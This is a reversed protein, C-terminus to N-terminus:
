ERRRGFLGKPRELKELRELLEYNRRELTKVAKSLERNRERLDRLEPSEKALTGEQLSRLQARLSRNGERLAELQATMPLSEDVSESIDLSQLTQEIIGTDGVPGCAQTEEELMRCIRERLNKDGLPKPLVLDARAVRGLEKIKKANMTKTTLVVPVGALRRLSKMKSCVDVGSVMPLEADLVAADPTNTKLYELVQRGDELMVTVPHDPSLLMDILQRQLPDHDAVLVTYDSM